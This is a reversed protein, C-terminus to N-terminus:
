NTPYFEFNVGSKVAAEKVVAEYERQGVFVLRSGNLKGDIGPTSLATVLLDSMNRSNNSGYVLLSGPEVGQNFIKQTDKLHPTPDEMAGFFRFYIGKTKGKVNRSRAVEQVFKKWDADIDTSPVSIAQTQPAAKEECASFGFIMAISLLVIAFLRM